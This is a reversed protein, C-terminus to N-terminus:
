AGRVVELVRTRVALCLTQKAGEFPPLWASSHSWQKALRRLSPTKSRRQRVLVGEKGHRGAALRLARCFSRCLRRFIVAATPLTACHLAGANGV